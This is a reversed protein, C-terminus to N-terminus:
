ADDSHAERPRTRRNEYDPLEVAHSGTTEVVWGSGARQESAPFWEAERRGDARSPPATATARTPLRACRASPPPANRFTPDSPLARPRCSCRRARPSPGGSCARGPRFKLSTYEGPVSLVRLRLRLAPLSSVQAPACALWSQVSPSVPQDIITFFHYSLPTHFYAIQACKKCAGIPPSVHGNMTPLFTTLFHHIFIPSRLVSKAAPTSSSSSGQPRVAVDLVSRLLLLLRRPACGAPLACVYRYTRLSKSVRM